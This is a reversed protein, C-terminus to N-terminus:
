KKNQLIGNKELDSLHNLNLFSILKEDLPKIRNEVSLYNINWNENLLTRLKYNGSNISKIATEITMNVPYIAFLPELFDQDWKPIVCDFNDLEDILLQIVSNNICAGTGKYSEPDM